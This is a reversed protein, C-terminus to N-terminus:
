IVTEAEQLKRIPSKKENSKNQYKVTILICNFGATDLYMMYEQASQVSRCKYRRAREV